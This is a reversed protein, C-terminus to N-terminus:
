DIERTGIIEADNKEAWKVMEATDKFTRRWEVAVEVRRHRGQPPRRDMGRFGYAEIRKGV